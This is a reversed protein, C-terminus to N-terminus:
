ARKPSRGPCKLGCPYNTVLDISGHKALRVTENSLFELDLTSIPRIRAIRGGIETTIM